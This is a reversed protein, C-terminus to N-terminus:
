KGVCFRSFIEDSLDNTAEEGLLERAKNYASQLSVSIIDMGLGSEADEGAQRLAEDIQRLLSLQRANSLSPRSFSEESLSLSDFIAEKLAKIEHNLASVYIKGDEKDELLDDKNYCLILKKNQAKEVIQKEQESLQKKCADLVLVVVDANEISKQSLEVGIKEIKDESERIGATDLLHIPVGKISIDGEVIDRTTGPIDSVIAKEEDLLANLISSKGVNPEGVIALKIGERIIQGEFGQSILKAIAKRIQQSEAAIKIESAEEIDEYEPYDIGVEVLALLSSIAEKIPLMLESAEGKLSRLALNKAEITTANIMENVAEAEILDMKGNYFARASFEGRTAYNVGLSLYAQIIQNAIIMSGHPILEVVDEGTMSRPGPYALVVVQDIPEGVENKINGLCIKRGQEPTITKDFLRNTLEFVGDGSLRIISLAGKLPPTALAIIPKGM